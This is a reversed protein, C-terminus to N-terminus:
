FCARWLESSATAPSAFWYNRVNWAISIAIAPAKKNMNQPDNFNNVAIAPSKSRWGPESLVASVTPPKFAGGIDTWCNSIMQPAGTNPNLSLFTQPWSMKNEGVGGSRWNDFTSLQLLPGEIYWLFDINSTWTFHEDFNDAARDSVVM